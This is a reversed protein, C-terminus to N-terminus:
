QIRAIADKVLQQAIPHRENLKQLKPLAPKAAAGLHGLSEAAVLRRDALGATLEHAFDDVAAEGLRLLFAAMVYHGQHYLERFRDHAPALTGADYRGMAALLALPPKGDMATFTGVVAGWSTPTGIATLVQAAATRTVDDELLAVVAAEHEIAGRGIARLGLLAELRLAADDSALWAAWLELAAESTAGSASLARSALAAEAAREGSAHSRAIELLRPEAEVLAKPLLGRDVPKPLPDIQGTWTPALAWLERARDGVRGRYGLPKAADRWLTFVEEQVPRKRKGGSAKAPAAPVSAPVAPNPAAPGDAVVGGLSWLATARTTPDEGEVHGLIAAAAGAADRGLLGCCWLATDVLEPRDGGLWGRLREVDERAPRQIWALELARVLDEDEVKRTLPQLAEATRAERAGLRRLSRLAEVARDPQVAAGVLYGAGPEGLEEFLRFLEADPAAADVYAEVARVGKKGMQLLTRAVPGRPIRDGELAGSELVGVLPDRAKGGISVLATVGADVLPAEPAALTRILAPTANAAKRGLAGLAQASAIREDLAGSQLTEVLQDISPKKQPAAQLPTGLLVSLSLALVALLASRM